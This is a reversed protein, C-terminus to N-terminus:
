VVPFVTRVSEHRGVVDGVAAGLAVVDLEGVLRLVVAAVPSTSRDGGSEDQFWFRAQSFSLPIM